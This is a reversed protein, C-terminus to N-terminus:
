AKGNKKELKYSLPILIMDEIHAHVKLEFELESLSMLLKRKLSQNGKPHVHQIFLDRFANLRSEIDSHHLQYDHCSYRNNKEYRKKNQLRLFYPFAIKEEYQIHEKVESFYENFYTEIVSVINSKDTKRIQRIYNLIEPYKELLYYQHGNRLYDIIDPIDAASVSIDKDIYFGNHLNCILVFLNENIDILKCLQTVTIEKGIQTVGFNELVLLLLPNDKVIASVRQNPRIYTKSIFDMNFCINFNAKYPLM